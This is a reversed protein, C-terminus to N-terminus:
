KGDTVRRKGPARRALYVGRSLLRGYVEAPPQDVFEESHMLAACAQAIAVQPDNLEKGVDMRYGLPAVFFVALAVIADRHAAEFTAPELVRRQDEGRRRPAQCPSPEPM